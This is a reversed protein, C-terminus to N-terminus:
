RAPGVVHPRRVEFALKPKAVPLQAIRQRHHIRRTSVQEAAPSPLRHRDRGRLRDELIEEPGVAQGLGNQAVVATRKGGVPRRTPKGPQRDPPNPEADFRDEDLRTVGLLVASMLAEVAGQLCRGRPRRALVEVSLLTREIVETVFVVELTGVFRQLEGHGGLVVAARSPRIGFTKRLQLVGAVELDAPDARIAGDGPALLTEEQALTQNAGLDAEFLDVVAEPGDVQGVREQGAVIFSVSCELAESVIGGSPPGRRDGEPSGGPVAM